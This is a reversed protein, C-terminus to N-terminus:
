RCGCGPDAPVRRCLMRPGDTRERGSAGLGLEGVATAQNIPSDEPPEAAGSGASM